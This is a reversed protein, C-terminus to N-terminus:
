QYRRRALELGLYGFFLFVPLTWLLNIYSHGSLQLLGVAFLTLMMNVLSFSLTELAIRQQLEDLRRMFRTAEYGVWIAPFVAAFRVIARWPDPLLLACLMLALGGWLFGILSIAFPKITPSLKM